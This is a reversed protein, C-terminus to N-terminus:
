FHFNGEFDGDIANKNKAVVPNSSGSFCSLFSPAAQHADQKTFARFTKGQQVAVLSVPSGTMIAEYCIRMTGPTPASLSGNCTIYDTSSDYKPGREVKHQNILSNFETIPCDIFRKLKFVQETSLQFAGVHPCSCETTKSHINPTRPPNYHGYSEKFRNSDSDTESWKLDYSYETSNEGQRSSEVWQYVEVTRKMRIVPQPLEFGTELDRHAQAVDEYPINLIGHLYIPRQDYQYTVKSSDTIKRTGKRCRSLILFYEVADQEVIWMIPVSFIVLFIGILFGWLSEVIRQGYSKGVVVADSSVVADISIVPAVQLVILCSLLLLSQISIFNRGNFKM